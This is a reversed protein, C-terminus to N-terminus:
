AAALESTPVHQMRAQAEDSRLLRSGLAPALPAPALPAHSEAAAEATKKADCHRVLTTLEALSLNFQAGFQAHMQERKAAAYEDRWKLVDAPYIGARTHMCIHDEDLRRVLGGDSNRYSSREVPVSNIRALKVGHEVVDHRCIWCLPKPGEDTAADLVDARYCKCGACAPASGYDTVRTETAGM